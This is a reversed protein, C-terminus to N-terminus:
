RLARAADTYKEAAADLDEHTKEAIESFKEAAEGKWGGERAVSQLAGAAEHMVRGRDGFDDAVLHVDETTAPVPDRDRDVLDWREARRNM